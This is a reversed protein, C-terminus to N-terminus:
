NEPATLSSSPTTTTPAKTKPPIYKTAQDRRVRLAWEYAKVLWKLYGIDKVRGYAVLRHHLLEVDKFTLMPPVFDDPVDTAGTMRVLPKAAALVTRTSRMLPKPPTQRVAQPRYRDAFGRVIDMARDIENNLLLVRMMAVNVREILRSDLKRGQYEGDREIIYWKKWLEDAFTLALEREHGGDRKKKANACREFAEVYARVTRDLGLEEYISWFVERCRFLSAHNYLVSVYATVLRPTLEVGGFKQHFLNFPPPSGDPSEKVQAERISNFLFNVEQVVEGPTQPPIHAFSPPETLPGPEADDPPAEEQAASTTKSDKTPPSAKAPAAQKVIKTAGRVFPPKYAAYANFVHLMIEEDVRADVPANVAELGERNRTMEALIWRVRGLDGIRKAGELLAAFTKRDPRYASIGEANRNSDLMQRAIRYAEAVFEKTGARACALIIANYAGVTPTLRHDVTMETWLDLAKEVESTTSVSLPSACARIMLTYLVVDPDPHAVYRMHAFLDWAQARSISSPRSFLATIVSTYTEMPAPVAQNEYSHLIELANTPIVTPPTNNLHAVIHFHRQTEVPPGTLHRSLLSDAASANGLKSYIALVDTISQEPVKLGTRKMLDLTSEASRLDRSKLATRVLAECERSSLIAVPFSQQEQTAAEPSALRDTNELRTVISELRSLITLYPRQSTSAANDVDFREYLAEVIAADEAARAKRVAQQDVRLQAEQQDEVPLDLVDQYFSTLEQETFTPEYTVVEEVGAIEELARVQRDLEKLAEPVDREHPSVGGLSRRKRRFVSPVNSSPPPPASPTSSGVELNRCVTSTFFNRQLRASSARKLACLRHMLSKLEDNSANQDDLTTSPTSRGTAGLDM